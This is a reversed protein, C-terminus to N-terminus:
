DVWFVVHEEMEEASVDEERATRGRVSMGAQVVTEPDGSVLPHWWDLDRGEAIRRYGCSRPLWDMEHVNAPTIAVCDAVRATRNAYDKCRVSRRDLLRCAVDTYYVKGTEEDELKHLCCKGCGDCLAEWETKTMEDLTKSKWYPVTGSM